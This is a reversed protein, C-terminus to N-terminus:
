LNIEYANIRGDPRPTWFIAKGFAYGTGDTNLPVYAIDEFMALRMAEKMAVLRKNGDPENASQEILEDVKPNSYFGYNGIGWTQDKTRSHLFLGLDTQASSDIGYTATFYMSSDGAEYKLRDEAGTENKRRVRVTADIGVEKLQRAVEQAFEGSKPHGVDLNVKFGNPFGAQALLQKAKQPDFPLRKIDPNYGFLYKTVMQTEPYAFGKYTNKILQNIDIAYYVAKRVRIDKFPNKPTDTYLSKERQIDFGVFWISLSPAIAVKFNPDNKLVEIQDYPLYEILDAEGKKLAQVRETDDTIVKYVVKKVKAKEGWYNENRLLVVPEDKTVKQLIFPGTGIPPQTDTIRFSNHPLIYLGALKYLLAWNSWKTTIEVTQPDIVEVKNINQVYHVTDWSFNTGSAKASNNQITEVTFKVDEATLPDGNSFKVNGRLNIRLRKDDVNQWSEALLPQIKYDKDFYVLSELFQATVGGEPLNPDTNPYFNTELSNELGAILGIKVEDLEKKQDSVPSSKNDKNNSYVKFYSIGIVLTVLLVSILTLILPYKNPKKESLVSKVDEPQQKLNDDM